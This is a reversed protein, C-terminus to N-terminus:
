LDGESVEITDVRGEGDRVVVSLQPMGGRLLAAAAYFADPPEFEKKVIFTSCVLGEEKDLAFSSVLPIKHEYCLAIIQTMLPSIQEDYIEEKTSM